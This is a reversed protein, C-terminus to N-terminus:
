QPTARCINEVAQQAACSTDGPPCLVSIQAMMGGDEHELIHCHYVFTGVQENRSFDMLVTLIGPRVCRPSEPTGSCELGPKGRCGPLEPNARCLSQGRPVPVTDHYATATDPNLFDRVMGDTQRLTADETPEAKPDPFQFVGNPDLTFRSQHIHFNHDEGTWNQLEWPEVNGKVTCVTGFKNHMFAPFSTDGDHIGTRWVEKISHLVKGDEGWFDMRGDAHRVGAILGFVENVSQKLGSPPPLMAMAPNYGDDDDYAAQEARRMAEPNVQRATVFVHVFRHVFYIVRTDGAVFQCRKPIGTMDGQVVPIPTAPGTVAVDQPANAATVAATDQPAAWVVRGLEVNPWIDGSGSQGTQITFNKLIYTGGQPPAPIAIEVRSAPMIMLTTRKRSGEVPRVSVGDTALVQFPLNDGKGAPAIELGYTMTPSANVIRWIEMRGAEAHMTPYQVGNITFVWKGPQSKESAQCEGHRIGGSVACLGSDSSHITSWMGNGASQIETDKLVLIRVNTNTLTCNGPSGDGEPCAYDTLAGITIAGTTGGAVQPQSFGHPHPHYWFLGSPHEGTAMSNVGPQGPIFTDYHLPLATVGHKKHLVGGLLTGCTDETSRWDDSGRKQTVDLVYDGYPGLGAKVPHYPSVLLGHTHLNSARCPVAGNTPEQIADPGQYDLHSAFMVDLTDGQVLAWESGGFGWSPSALCKDPIRRGEGSQPHVVMATTNPGRSLKFVPIDTVPYNGVYVYGPKGAPASSVHDASISLSLTGPAGVGSRVPAFIPLPRFANEGPLGSRGPQPYAADLDDCPSGTEAHAALPALLALAFLASNFFRVNL